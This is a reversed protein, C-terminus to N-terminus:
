SDHEGNKIDVVKNHLLRHYELVAELHPTDQFKDYILKISAIMDEYEYIRKVLPTVAEDRVSNILMRIDVKLLGYNEPLICHVEKGGMEVLSDWNEVLESIQDTM